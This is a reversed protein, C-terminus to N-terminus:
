AHYTELSDVRTRDVIAKAARRARASDVAERVASFVIAAAVFLAVMALVLLARMAHWNQFLDAEM